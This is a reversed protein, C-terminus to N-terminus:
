STECMVSTFSIRPAAPSRGPRARPSIGFPRAPHVDRRDRNATDDRAHVCRFSPRTAQQRDRLGLRDGLIQPVLPAVPDLVCPEWLPELELDPGDAAHRERVAVEPQRDTAPHEAAAHHLVAPEDVDVRSGSVTNPDSIRAFVNSRTVNPTPAMPPM